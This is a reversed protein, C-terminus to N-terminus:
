RDQSTTTYVDRVLQYYGPMYSSNNDCSATFRSPNNVTLAKGMLNKLSGDTFNKTASSSKSVTISTNVAGYNGSKSNFIEQGTKLDVGVIKCTSTPDQVVWNMDIEGGPKVYGASVNFSLFHTYTRPLSQLLYSTNDCSIQYRYQLNNWAFPSSPPTIAQSSGDTSQVTLSTLAGTQCSCSIYTNTSDTFACIPPNIPDVHLVCSNNNGTDPDYGTPCTFTTSVPYWAVVTNVGSINETSSSLGVNLTNINTNPKTTDYCKIYYGYTNAGSPYNPSGLNYSFGAGASGTANGFKVSKDYNYLSCNTGNSSWTFNVPSLAETPSYGTNTIDLKNSDFFTATVPYWAVTTTTSNLTETSSALLTNATNIDSRPNATDYCKIYYGYTNAGSPYNPSGLNYSFGAGASGSADGFKISKDYNYFSCNTGNSSWTFQIPTSVSTPSYDTTNIDLKNSAANFTFTQRTDDGGINDCEITHTGPEPTITYVLTYTSAGTYDSVVPTNTQGVVPDYYLETSNTCTFTISEGVGLTGNAALSKNNSLAIPVLAVYANINATDTLAPNSNDAVTYKITENGKISAKQFTYPMSIPTTGVNTSISTTTSFSANLSGGVFGQELINFPPNSSTVVCVDIFGSLEAESIIKTATANIDKSTCTNAGGTDLLFAASARNSVFLFSAFIFIFIFYKKLM